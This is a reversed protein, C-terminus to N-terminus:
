RPPESPLPNLNPAFSRFIVRKFDTHYPGDQFRISDADTTEFSILFWGGGPRDRKFRRAGDGTTPQEVYLGSVGDIRATVALGDPQSVITLEPIRYVTVTATPSAEQGLPVWQGVFPARVPVSDPTYRMAVRVQCHSLESSTILQQRTGPETDAPLQRVGATLQADRQQLAARTEYVDMVVRFSRDHIGVWTGIRNYREIEGACTRHYDELVAAPVQAQVQGRASGPLGLAVSVILAAACLVSTTTTRIM